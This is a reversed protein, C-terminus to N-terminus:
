ELRVIMGKGALSVLIFGNPGLIIDWPGFPPKGVQSGLVPDTTVNNTGGGLVTRLMGDAGLRRVRNNLRDAILLGADTALIGQVQKLAVSRAPGDRGLGATGTGALIYAKGEAMSRGYYTGSHRCLLWVRTYDGVVINGAQDVAVSSVGSLGAQLPEIGDTDDVAAGGGLVVTATGDPVVRHVVNKADEAILLSNGDIALGGISTAEGESGPEPGWVNYLRGTQVQQMKFFDGDQAPMALVRGTADSLFVNGAPDVRLGAPSSLNFTAALGGSTNIQGTPDGAWPIFSGEVLREVTGASSRSVNLVGGIYAMQRPQTGTSAVQRVFYYDTAISATASLSGLSVSLSGTGAASAVFSGGDLTGLESPTIAPVLPAGAVPQGASDLASVALQRPSGIKVEIAAPEVQLSRVVKFDHGTSAVGNVVVSVLGNAADAPVVLRIEGDSVRQVDAARLNGILVEFPLNRGHGFGGGRLVLTQGVALAPGSLSSLVPFDPSLVLDPVEATKGPNVEVEGSVVRAYREKTAAVRYRSAAVDALTYAGSEDTKGVLRTGPVFVDIGFASEGEPVVVRGRLAGTQALRMVGLDVAKDKVVQVYLRIAKLGRAAAEFTVIGVPPKEFRFGGEADTRAELPTTQTVGDLPTSQTVGDLAVQPGVYAVVTAGGVPRGEPDEVRGVVLTTRTVGDLQQVPETPPATSLRLGPLLNCGALLLALALGTTPSRSM